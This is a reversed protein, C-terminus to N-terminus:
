PPALRTRELRRFTDESELEYRIHELRAYGRSRAPRTVETRRFPDAVASWSAQVAALIGVGSTM